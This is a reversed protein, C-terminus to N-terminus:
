LFLSEESLAQKQRDDLTVGKITDPIRIKDARVAVLENTLKDLSLFVSTIEGQKYQADVIRGLNGPKFLNQKDEDTFKVGFYPRDLEPEKRM